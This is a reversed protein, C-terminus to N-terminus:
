LTIASSRETTKLSNWQRGAYQIAVTSFLWKHWKFPPFCVLLLWRVPVSAGIKQWKFLTKLKTFYCSLPVTPTSFKPWVPQELSQAGSASCHCLHAHREKTNASTEFPMVPKMENQVSICTERACCNGTSVMWVICIHLSVNSCIYFQHM